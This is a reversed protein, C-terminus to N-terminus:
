FDVDNIKLLINKSVVTSILNCLEWLYEAMFIFDRSDLTLAFILLFCLNFLCM